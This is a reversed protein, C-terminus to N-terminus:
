PSAVDEFDLDLSTVTGRWYTFPGDPLEWRVEARTPIRIRGVVAYDGFTGAWSTRVIKKGESRPRDAAGGVIDGTADFEIQFSARESGVSTAVEVTRADVDSWELARNALMAHPVWPLESLYRIAEGEATEPGGFRMFPLGFLRVELRGEGAAYGDLVRMSVLPLIPFRARWSFAVQAVAFDEVAAFPLPHGGPKRVMEGAQTIRVKRPVRGGGGPLVRELYRRVLAPPERGAVFASGTGDMDRSSAAM